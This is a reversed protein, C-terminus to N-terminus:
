KLVEEMVYEMPKLGMAEYFGIAKENFSWVNLTVHYFGNARAYDKVYHYLSEGVHKGRAAADVCLDDIFLTRIDTMNNSHAREKYICFAYGLVTGDEDYVFIPTRPDSIMKVLEEDTYKTTNPVFIDPRGQAHINLVEMLLTKLVPIDKEEARRVTM